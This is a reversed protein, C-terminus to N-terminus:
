RRNEEWWDYMDFWRERVNTPHRLRVGDWAEQFDSRSLIAPESRVFADRLEEVLREDVRTEWLTPFSSLPAHSTVLLGHGRHKARSMVCWKAFWSLQEFGDIAFIAKSRVANLRSLIPIPNREDTRLQFYEVSTQQQLIPILSQVLTSKGTGHPGIIAARRHFRQLFMEALEEITGGDDRRYHIAGPRFFRTAFPNSDFM